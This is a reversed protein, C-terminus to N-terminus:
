AQAGVDSIYKYYVQDQSLYRDYIDSFGIDGQKLATVTAQYIAYVDRNAKATITKSKRQSLIDSLQNRIQLYSAVSKWTPSNGNDKMFTKDTIIKNFGSIVKLTKSGNPDLYSEYWPTPIPSGAKDLLPNGNADHEYSLAYVTAQKVAKLDEAGKQNIDIIGRTQMVADIQNMVNRYQIWGLKVKNQVEADAANQSQRFTEATGPGVQTNYQWDYVANSFNTDSKSNTILGVLAPDDKFVSTVLDQYRKINQYTGQTATAGTKNQSLSSAFAFFEPYDRLFNADAEMGMTRQYERYKDLYLRYPTDFKPSYPLILNAAIRMKYYTDTMEKIKAESPMSTGEHQSKYLETTHILQYTRAYEISNQGAMLTQARKMWAPMLGEYIPGSTPGFPLAWKMVDEFQPARKVLESAPIAVYPGVPIVDNFPLTAKGGYLANMGGGFIIDLSQKPIGMQNLSALGEGILPLRKAWDPMQLWITDQSTSDGAKVPKNNQDTVLGARNPSNWILNGRNIIVPNDAALRLWTKIANEQASFFPSVYKLMTALNTRREINFLIKKVGNQAYDHARAMVQQQEEPTLRRKNLGSMIDLRRQLEDQYLEKYLPHRAWADEPMSGLFKFLNDTISRISILSNNNINERLVNGHIVPLDDVSKEAMHTKLDNATILERNAVKDRLTQVEAPLYNDLFGRVRAVYEDVDGFKLGLGQEGVKQPLRKRLEQGKADYRLWNAVEEPTKGAALMRIPASNAFQQNLTTAWEDYYGIDTPKVAGIGKSALNRGVLDSNTDVLRSFTTASSNLNRFMDGLPGGFADYMNYVQGDSTTIEVMGQGERHKFKKSAMREALNAQHSYIQAKEDRLNRMTGLDSLSGADMPNEAVRAELEAIKSNLGDIETKVANRAEVVSSLTAPAGPIFNFNDIIREKAPMTNFMMNRMGRGLNRVSTMAGLSAMIRLQSDVGNRITYGGRLLAAAKFMDQLIDAYHVVTDKTRGVLAIASGHRKLLRNALDFDMMPLFDDTQSEFIPAKIISKDHDVMFTNERISGIASLRASNYEGWIQNAHEATLGHKVALGTMIDQELVHAALTRQEPTTAGIYRDLHAKATADSMGTLIKGRNLTAVIEKYSNADNVAVLGAPREQEAHTIVQFMRHFPTAQYFKILPNGVEKDYFSAARQRAVFDEVGQLATGTTRTLVGGGAGLQMLKAVFEDTQISSNLNARAEETVAMNEWPHAGGSTGYTEQVTLKWKDIADLEQNSANIADTIDPRVARLEEMAVPDGLASRLIYSTTDTNTSNGLLHALLGPEHSSKVMPHNLAYLTDNKTFDDIVKTFRNAQGYQAKTIDEAATAAEDATRIAGVGYESAKLVKAAKGGVLTVDGIFQIGTDLAGSAFRGFTSNKFAADRQVPDYINFTNDIVTKPLGAVAQGFSIDQAGQYAQKWENPDFFSSKGSLADGAVLAATTLPERIVNQNITNITNLTQKIVPAAAVDAVPALLSQGMNKTATALTNAVGNFHADNNWPSTAVDWVFKAPAAVAGGIDTAFKGLRNWVSM